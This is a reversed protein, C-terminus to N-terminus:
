KFITMMAGSVFTLFQVAAPGSHWCRVSQDKKLWVGGWVAAAISCFGKHVDCIEKGIGGGARRLARSEGIASCDNGGVRFM